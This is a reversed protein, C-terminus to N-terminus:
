KGSFWTINTIDTTYLTSNVTAQYIIKKTAFAIIEGTVLNTMVVPNGDAGELILAKNAATDGVRFYVTVHDLDVDATIATGGIALGGIKSVLPFDTSPSTKSFVTYSLDSM